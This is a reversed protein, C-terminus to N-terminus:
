AIARDSEYWVGDVKVFSITDNAADLIAPANVVIKGAVTNITLAATGKFVISVVQNDVGNLIETLTNAAGTYHFVASEDADISTGNFDVTNETTAEPATTRKLETLKGDSDALLTLTGGTNLAFPANGALKIKDGDHVVNGAAATNGKIKIVQNPFAGSITDISTAWDNTITINSYYEDIKVEGTTDDYLRVFFDSKFPSMGNTWVTQVKFALPDGEKLKNGIHKLRVGWKYDGFLFIERKLAEMKYMSQEGPVNQMLEINDDYTIFMFDTGGLDVLPCFKVNPYNEVELLEQGTYNNDGGFLQRKREAHARMWDPSLYLVLNHNNREEEPINSEILSKVYDVINSPDPKGIQAVSYKKFIHYARWLKIALGDGRHIALGPIAAEEPTAVHVGNIAVKRDEQARRKDLENMLFRVFGWKYAQSGEQNYQSIWSTLVEQLWYGVYEVDVQAPYVKAEEPKIAQKNKPLWNKKRAQSIEASVINGDAVRDDVNSRLNWFSPLRLQDRFLSKIDANTDRNYLDVDQKLQEVEVSGIAFTPLTDTLGAAYQNWPRNEFANLPNNDGYLHSKSHKIGKVIMKEMTAVKEPEDENSLKEVADTLQKTVETMKKSFSELNKNIDEDELVKDIESESLNTEKLSERLQERLAEDDRANAALDKEIAKIVTDLGKAGDPDDKGKLADQLKKKDDESLEVKGEKQPVESWGMIGMLAVIFKAAFKWKM